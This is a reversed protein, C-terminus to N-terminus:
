RWQNSYSCHSLRENLSSLKEQFSIVQAQSFESPGIVAQDYLEMARQALIIDQEARLCSCELRHYNLFDSFQPYPYTVAQVHSLAFETGLDYIKMRYFTSSQNVIDIPDITDTLLKLPPKMIPIEAINSNIRDALGKLAVKEIPVVLPKHKFSFLQRWRYCIVSFMCLALFFTPYVTSIIIIPFNAFLIVESSSNSFNM